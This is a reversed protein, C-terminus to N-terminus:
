VELRTDNTLGSGAVPFTPSLFTTQTDSFLPFVFSKKEKNTVTLLKTPDFSSSLINKAFMQPVHKLSFQKWSPHQPFAISQAPQLVCVFMRVFKDGFKPSSLIGWWCRSMQEM